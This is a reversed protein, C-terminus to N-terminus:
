NSFYKYLDLKERLLHAYCYQIRCPARNYSSFRDVVLFGDLPTTGIMEEVIRSPRNDSFNFLVSKNTCFIWAFGNKGHTRWGTEDAHRVLAKRYESKLYDRAPLFIDHLRHFNNKFVSAKNKNDYFSSLKGLSIQDFYHLVTAQALM